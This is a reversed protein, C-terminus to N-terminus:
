SRLIIEVQFGATQPKATEYLTKASQHPLAVLRGGANLPM